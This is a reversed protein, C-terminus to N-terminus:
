DTESYIINFDGLTISELSNAILDRAGTDGRVVFSCTYDHDTPLDEEPVITLSLVVRNATRNKRELVLEDSDYGEGLLTADDSYGTISAGDKGIIYAQNAADTIDNLSSALTMAQDDQFVGKHISSPGGGDITSAALATILLYAKNTGSHLSSLEVYDSLLSNRLIRSDDAWVMESLPVIVYDVGSVKEEAHIVDSQRIGGGIDRNSIEQTVKTRIQSDARPRNVGSELIVTNGINVSNEVAQKVLVDATAHKSTSIEEQVERILDNVVYRVTFNEDHEYDVSVAQGNVISGSSVRVISTPTTSSGEVILYDPNSSSPGDYELTRESNFVRISTLDVGISDLPEQKTGVLIHSEDNVVVVAGTPLGEYPVIKIYDTAKVSEGLWLPDDLKYLTYGNIPDLTGSAEGVVSVIRRIPQRTPIFINTDQYRYDGVIVDDVDFVPQSISDDLQITRYDQIVVGTLDFDTAKTINRFGWGKVTDDLMEVLPKEESLNPDTSRFVLNVADIVEFTQNEVVEFLFAFTDTTEQENLGKIWIDVKGGIHKLRLDDWDRMMLPNDAEIVLTELVGPVKRAAALYGGTTGSDVSVLALSAREALSRNSEIDRGWQTPELNIVSFGAAGSSIKNIQNAPRNGDSGPTLARINATIEWRKRSSVYYSDISSLFMTVQSTVEYSFSPVGLSEDPTTAIISGTEIPKDITPKTSTYFVAQGISRRSGERTVNYDGAKKDFAEDILIQVDADRTFFLSDRLTRKYPSTTVEDSIGDGDADDIALLTLFSQCRHIFDAVFNLRELETAPPDLHIDRTTSGPILSVSPDNRQIQEIESLVIDQRTRPAMDKITTDIILPLGVLESSYKSEVYENYRSDYGVATIVYYLPETDPVNLFQDNNTIGDTEDDLRDHDFYFYTNSKKGIIDLDFVQDDVAASLDIVSDSIEKVLNGDDDEEIVTVRLNNNSHSFPIEESHTPINKTENYNDTILDYNLKYYGGESGGSESSAYINYGLVEPEPNKTTVLTVKDKHRLVEIGTPPSIQLSVEKDTVYRIIITSIPSTDGSVDIARIDIQNDGPLLNLGNSYSSPNPTTFSPLDLEILTSDSVFGGGRIQVQVDIANSDVSGTIFHEKVNSSYVVYTQVGSGDPLNIDPAAIAM